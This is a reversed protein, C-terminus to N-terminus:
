MNVLSVYSLEALAEFLKRATEVEEAKLKRTAAKGRLIARLVKSSTKILERREHFGLQHRLGQSRLAKSAYEYASLAAVDPTMRGNTAAEQIIQHGKDVKCLFELADQLAQKQTLQLAAREWVRGELVEEVDLSPVAHLPAPGGGIGFRLERM